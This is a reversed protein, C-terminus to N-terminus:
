RDMSDLRDMSALTSDSGLSRPKYNMLFDGKGAGDAFSSRYGLGEVVVRTAARAKENSWDEYEIRYLASYIEARGTGHYCHILVPYNEEDDLVEFFETLTELTPVQPSPIHIHEIDLDHERNIARIAEDEADVQQQRAPNLADQVGPDLLDIVTKIENDVLFGELRDPAILSSRYVKNEAVERFRYNIRDFWLQYLGLLVLLGAAVKLLNKMAGRLQSCRTLTCETMM